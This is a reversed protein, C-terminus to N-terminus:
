ETPPSGGEFLVVAAALSVFPFTLSGAGLAILIVIGNM